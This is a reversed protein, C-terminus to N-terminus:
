SLEASPAIAHHNWYMIQAGKKRVFRAGGDQSVVIGLAEPLANCLRYVSRHRTGVDETPENRFSEGEVDLARAVVPVEGLHSSIEGGFGLLEFRQTVFVAGDVATLTAIMHALEFIAEDLDDLESGSRRGYDHWGVTHQDVGAAALVKMARVILRRFRRRAEDDTFTYKLNVWPNTCTLGAALDNPLIILTGGHRSWQITSILRQIMQRAVMGTFRSDINAWLSGEKARDDAHIVMLEQRVAAFYAPLWKSDFVNFRDIQLKGADLAALPRAGQSILMSGPRRVGIILSNPLNLGDGRGGYFQELWRPGTQVIGWIQLENNEDVCVGVLSRDHDIAPTLRRLEQSTFPRLRNFCLRHFGNPLPAEEPFKRPDRVILRFTLPRSEERMLSAEFTESILVRLVEPDPLTETAPGDDDFEPQNWAAVVSSVIQGADM